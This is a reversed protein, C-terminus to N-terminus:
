KGRCDIDFQKNLDVNMVDRITEFCLIKGCYPCKVLDYNEREFGVTKDCKKCRCIKYDMKTM